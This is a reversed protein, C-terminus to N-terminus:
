PSSVRPKQGLSLAIQVVILLVVSVLLVYMGSNLSGTRDSIYGILWTSIAAGITGCIFLPTSSRTAAPGFTKAFRSVNTPFIWSTGFGSAVAGLGLVAISSASLVVIMGVLVIALGLFLMRTEDFWKFLLPAIGRGIVFFLFYLFTPSVFGISSGEPFRTAYTTLWGGM